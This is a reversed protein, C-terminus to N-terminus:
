ISRIRDALRLAREPSDQRAWKSDLMEDAAEEWEDNEMHKLMNKFKLLGSVGMQYGMNVLVARCELPLWMWYSLKRKIEDFVNRICAELIIEAIEESMGQELNYGYGITLKGATCVYSHERFGEDQKIQDIEIM